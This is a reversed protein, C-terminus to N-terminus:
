QIPVKVLYTQQTRTEPRGDSRSRGRRPVEVTEGNVLHHQFQRKLRELRSSYLGAKIDLDSSDFLGITVISLGRDTGHYFYAEYGEARLREAYQEAARRIQTQSYEGSDFDSWAAVQLTYLPDVNPHRRRVSMLAHPHDASAAARGRDVRSLMARAFPRANGTSFNKIEDLDQQAQPDDPDTYRGYVIMSGDETTVVRADSLRPVRSRLRELGQRAVDRHGDMTFTQLIIAWPRQTASQASRDRSRPRGMDAPQPPAADDISRPRPTNDSPNDSMGVVAMPDDYAVMSDGETTTADDNCGVPLLVIAALLGILRINDPTRTM